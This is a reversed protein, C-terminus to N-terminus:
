AGTVQELGGDERVIFTDEKKVQGLGKLMLPSHVLALAMNPRIEIFRHKPIITTIPPEEIQLGIGHAYGVVREEILNYKLYVRELKKIVDMFRSKPKTLDRSLEYVEDMCKLANEVIKKPKGVYVTRSINAYYGRYDAGIIVTVFVGEKVLVDSFPEAHVRPDPGVNVYVLPSESGQKYLFSYAEAAIETESYNIKVASLAREMAESALKGARRIAEQEYRDKIMRMESTIPYVDVVRVRPNLRKFMEYFLIYADREVGFELGVVRYGSNRILSSVKAMLDGGDVFTVVNRIWTKKRFGDEEGRAVFAIPEGEGPILLAPRLWKTGTFYMFSSLTRLMVADVGKEMFKEQFLALRSKLIEPPINM